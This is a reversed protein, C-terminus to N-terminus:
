GAAPVVLADVATAGNAGLIVPNIDIAHLSEGCALAADQLALLLDTLRALTDPYKWRPSTLIRGTTSATLSALITDRSVPIPWTTVDRIAEAFIGGLGALLVPGVGDARTMGAIVELEGKIMAQVIVRPRDTAAFAADLAAQNALGVHVLGLETKHAVGEAVGKLVVPYGIRNAAVRAQDLDVCEATEVTAVGYDRLLALSEPESLQRSPLSRASIATAPPTAPQPTLLAAIGELLVDMDTFV